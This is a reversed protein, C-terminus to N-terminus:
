SQPDDMLPNPRAFTSLDDPRALRIESGEVKVGHRALTAFARSLNEPTM